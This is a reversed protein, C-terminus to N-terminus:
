LEGKKRAIEAARGTLKGTLRSPRHGEEAIIRIENLIIDNEKLDFFDLTKDRLYKKSFDQFKLMFPTIIKGEGSLEETNRLNDIKLKQNIKLVIFNKKENDIDLTYIKKIHPVMLNLQSRFSDIPFLLLDDMKKEKVIEEWALLVDGLFLEDNEIVKFFDKEIKDPMEVISTKILQGITKTQM